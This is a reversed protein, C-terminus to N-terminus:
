HNAPYNLKEQIFTMFWAPKDNEKTLYKQIWTDWNTKRTKYAEKLTRKASGGKEFQKMFGGRMLVKEKPYRDVNWLGSIEYLNMMKNMGNTSGETGFSRIPLNPLVIETPTGMFAVQNILISPPAPSWSIKPTKANNTNWGPTLDIQEDIMCDPTTNIVRTGMCSSIVLSCVGNNTMKIRKDEEVPRQVLLISALAIEDATAYFPHTAAWITITTNFNSDYSDNYKTVISQCGRLVRGICQIYQSWTLPPSYLILETVFPLGIGENFVSGALFLVRGKYEPDTSFPPADAFDRLVKLDNQSNTVCLCEWHLGEENTKMFEKMDRHMHLTNASDNFPIMVVIKCRVQAMIAGIHMKLAEFKHCVPLTEKKTPMKNIFTQLKTCAYGSCEREELKDQSYLCREGDSCRKTETGLKQVYDMYHNIAIGIIPIYKVYFYQRPDVIIRDPSMFNWYEAYPGYCLGYPLEPVMIPSQSGGWDRMAKEKEKRTKTTLYPISRVCPYVKQALFDNFVVAYCNSPIGNFLEDFQENPTASSLMIASGQTNTQLRTTLESLNKDGVKNTGERSARETIKHVEDIIIVRNAFIHKPDGELKSAFVGSMVTFTKLYVNNISLWKNFNASPRNNTTEFSVYKKYRQGYLTNNKLSTEISDLQNQDNAMIFKTRPDDIFNELGKAMVLTKGSGTSTFLGVRVDQAIRPHFLLTAVRQYPYMSGCEFKEWELRQSMTTCFERFAEAFAQITQKRLHQQMGHTKFCITDWLDYIWPALSRHECLKDTKACDNYIQIDMDTSRIRLETVVESVISFTEISKDDAELLDNQSMNDICYQPSRWDYIVCQENNDVDMSEVYECELNRKKLNGNTQQFIISDSKIKDYLAHLYVHEGTTANIQQSAQTFLDMLSLRNGWLQIEQGDKSRLQIQTGNNLVTPGEEEETSDSPPPAMTVRFSICEDMWRFWQMTVRVLVGAHQETKVEYVVHDLAKLFSTQFNLETSWDLPYRVTKFYNKEDPKVIKLKEDDDMPDGATTEDNSVHDVDLIEEQTSAANNTAM